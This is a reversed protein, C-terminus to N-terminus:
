TAQKQGSGVLGDSVDAHLSAFLEMQRPTTRAPHGPVFFDRGDQNTPGASSRYPHSRVSDRQYDEVIGTLGTSSNQCVKDIAILIQMATVKSPQEWKRQRCTLSLWPWPPPILRLALESPGSVVRMPRKGPRVVSYIWLRSGAEVTAIPTLAFWIDWIWFKGM